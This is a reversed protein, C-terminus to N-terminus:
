STASTSGFVTLHGCPLRLQESQLPLPLYKKWAEVECNQGFWLLWHERVPCYVPPSVFLQLKGREELLQACFGLLYAASKESISEFLSTSLIRHYTGFEGTTQQFYRAHMTRIPHRVLRISPLAHGEQSLKDIRQVFTTECEDPMCYVDMQIRSCQEAGLERCLLEPTLDTGLMLLRLTGPHHNLQERIEGVWHLCRQEFMEFCATVKFFSDLLHGRTNEAEELQESRLLDLLEHNLYFSRQASHFYRFLRSSSSLPFLHRKFFAGVQVRESEGCQKLYHNLRLFRKQVHELVSLIVPNERIPLSEGNLDCRRGNADMMQTVQGNHFSRLGGIVQSFEDAFQFLHQQLRMPLKLEEVYRTLFQECAFQMDAESERPAVAVCSDPLYFVLLLTSSAEVLDSVVGRGNYFLAEGLSVRVSDYVENLRIEHGSGYIELMLHNTSFHVVTGSQWEGDKRRYVVTQDVCDM